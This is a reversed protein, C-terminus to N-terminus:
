QPQKFLPSVTRILIFEKLVLTQLLVTSDQWNSGWSVWVKALHSLRVESFRITIDRPSEWISFVPSSTPFKALFEPFHWSGTKHAQFKKM